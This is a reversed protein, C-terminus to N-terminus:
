INLVITYLLNYYILEMNLYIIFRDQILKQLILVFKNWEGHRTNIM